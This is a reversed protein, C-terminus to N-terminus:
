LRMITFNDFIAKVKTFGPDTASLTVLGAKVKPYNRGYSLTGVVINNVKFETSASRQIVELRNTQGSNNLIGNNLNSQVLVKLNPGERKTVQFYGNNDILFFTFYNNDFFNYVLGLAGFKTTDDLILSCDVSISYDFTIDSYPAISYAYYDPSNVEIEYKGQNIRHSYNDSEEIYWGNNKSFNTQYVINEDEDKKCSAITMLTILIISILKKM